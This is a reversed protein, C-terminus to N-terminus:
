NGAHDDWLGDFRAHWAAALDPVHLVVSVDRYVAYSNHTWNHSGILLRTGDVAMCKSHLLAEPADFRVEVGAEALRAAANSNIIASGYPDEPRDVDLLVRVAVDRGRAEALAAIVAANAHGLGSFSMYFMAVDIRTAADDILALLRPRYAHDELIEVTGTATAAPLGPAGPELERRRRHSRTAPHPHAATITALRDIGTDLADGHLALFAALPELESAAAPARLAGPEAFDLLGELRRRAAADLGGIRDALADADSFAGAKRREDLLRMTRVPGLIPLSELAAADASNVDVRDIPLLQRTLPAAAPGAAASDVGPPSRHRGHRRLAGGASEGVLRRAVATRHEPTWNADAVPLGGAHRLIAAVGPRLSPDPVDSAAVARLADLLPGTVLESWDLRHM